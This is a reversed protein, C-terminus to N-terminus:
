RGDTEHLLAIAALIPLNKVVPGYPHLWQEPLAITIIATYALIVAAQLRWLMRRRKMALTAIGLAFDLLSAGYLAVYAAAGTLGTRALLALSEQIPYVGLSVVGASIWVAALAWRLPPLLWALRARDAVAEATEEEVFDRVARPERGLLERLPRSDATNGRELMRWTDLDLLGIGLRAGAEVAARPMEIFRARGLGLAERLGALFERLAIPQPGVLAIRRRSFEGREIAARVAMAVDEVHVPQIRHDGRGPLPIVPLSALATFFRASSGGAGYVLSPQLVISPVDLALLAEDARRKSLHFASRAGADAGLASIQVCRVGLVRCAEFLAVPGEVHVADFTGRGDERLIGAANVVVDVGALRATWWSSARPVSLDYAPRLGPVVDHGAERLVRGVCRGIFGNAGLVLIKMSRM